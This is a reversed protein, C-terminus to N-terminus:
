NYLNKVLLVLDGNLLTTKFLNYMLLVLRGGRDRERRTLFIDRPNLLLSIYM